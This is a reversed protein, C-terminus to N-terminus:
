NTPCLLHKLKKSGYPISKGSEEQNVGVSDPSKVEWIYACGEPLHTLLAPLPQTELDCSSIIHLSVETLVLNFAFFSKCTLFNLPPSVSRLCSTNGFNLHEASM